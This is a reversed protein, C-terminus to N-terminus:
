VSVIGNLNILVTIRPSRPPETTPCRGEAWPMIRSIWSRTMCQVEQMSGAEGEAEAERDRM